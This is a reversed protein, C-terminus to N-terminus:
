EALLGLKEVLPRLNDRRERYIRTTEEGPVFVVRAGVRAMNAIFEEDESVQRFVNELYEMIEKPTGKPAALAYLQDGEWTGYGLEDLTPVDPFEPVRSSVVLPKVTGAEVHPLVDTPQASVLEIHGGALAALAAANGSHPIHVWEVGAVDRLQEATLHGLTGTGSSGYRVTGPNQRSYEFLEELTDFPADAHAVLVRDSRSLAAIIELDELSFPYDKITLKGTIGPTSIDWIIRYGNPGGQLMYRVGIAASAGAKNVAVLPQGLYKEASNAIIRATTDTYGGPAYPVVLEVPRSPYGRQAAVPEGAFFGIAAM